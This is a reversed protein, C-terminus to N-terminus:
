WDILKVLQAIMVMIKVKHFSLERGFKEASRCKGLEQLIIAIECRLDVSRERKALLHAKSESKDILRFDPTQILWISENHLNILMKKYLIKEFLHFSYGIGTGNRKHYKDTSMLLVLYAWVLPVQAASAALQHGRSRIQPQPDASVVILSEMTVSTELALTANRAFLITSFFFTLWISFKSLHFSLGLDGSNTKLFHVCQKIM